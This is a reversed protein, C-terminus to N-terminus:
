ALTKKNLKPSLQIELLTAKTTTGCNNQTMFFWNLILSIKRIFNIIKSNFAIKPVNMTGPVRIIKKVLKKKIKLDLVMPSVGNTNVGDLCKTNVSDKDRGRHNPEISHDHM